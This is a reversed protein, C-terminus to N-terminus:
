FEKFDGEGMPIVQEPRVEKAKPVPVKLDKGKRVQVVQTKKVEIKPHHGLVPIPGGNGNKHTLALDSVMGNGNRGGVMSVLEGVFGKMEEAQANMEEAASASEEASSANKQVVKDM